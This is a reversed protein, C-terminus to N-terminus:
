CRGDRGGVFSLDACRELTRHYRSRRVDAALAAIGLCFKSLRTPRLACARLAAVIPSPGPREQKVEVVALGDLAFVGHAMAFEVALDITVRECADPRLCAARRYDVALVDRLAWRDAALHVGAFPPSSLARLPLANTSAIAVRTKRTRGTNTSVKLELFRNGTDCYTRVRVKQRPLRGTEHARYLTWDDTDFYVTRYRQLRSGGVELVRYADGCAALLEPLLTAPVLYKRDIRDFLSDPGLAVLSVPSLRSLASEIAREPM